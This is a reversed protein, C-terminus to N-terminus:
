SMPLVPIITFVWGWLATLSSWIFFTHSLVIDDVHSLNLRHLSQRIIGNLHQPIYLDKSSWFWLNWSVSKLGSGFIFMPCLNNLLTSVKETFCISKEQLTWLPGLFCTSIAPAVIRHSSSITCSCFTLWCLSARLCRSAKTLDESDSHSRYKTHKLTKWIEILESKNYLLVPKHSFLFLIFGVFFRYQLYNSSYTSYLIFDHSYLKPSRKHTM